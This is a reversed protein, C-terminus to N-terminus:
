CCSQISCIFMVVYLCWCTICSVYSSWDMATVIRSQSWREDVFVKKKVAKLSGLADRCPVSYMGLGAATLAVSRGDEGSASVYDFLIDSPSCLAREVLRSARDFFMLFEDSAVIKDRQEASM